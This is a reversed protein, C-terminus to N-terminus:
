FIEEKTISFFKVGKYIFSYEYPYDKYGREKKNLRIDLVDAIMFVDNMHIGINYSNLTFLHLYGDGQELEADTWEIIKEDDQNTTEDFEILLQKSLCNTAEVYSDLLYKIHEQLRRTNVIQM